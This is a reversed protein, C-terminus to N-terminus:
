NQFLVAFFGTLPPITEFIGVVKKTRRDKVVKSASKIDDYKNELRDWNPSLDLALARAAMNAFWQDNM